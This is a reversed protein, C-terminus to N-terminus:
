IREMFKRFDESLGLAAFRSQLHGILAKSLEEPRELGGRRDLWARLIEREEQSLYSGIRDVDATLATLSVPAPPQSEIIVLTSAALDGLRRCHKSFFIMVVGIGQMDIILKFLNRIAAHKLTIPQGNLRIVRLKMLRKGITRGNMATECGIYYGYSFLFWLLLAVGLLWGYHTEWYVPAFAALFALGLVMILLFALQVTLDIIAAAARSGLDAVTYEVPINEPTIITYKRM